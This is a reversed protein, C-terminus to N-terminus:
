LVGDLLSLSGRMQSRNHATQLKNIKRPGDMTLLMKDVFHIRRGVIGMQQRNAPLTSNDLHPGATDEHARVGPRGAGSRREIDPAPPRM